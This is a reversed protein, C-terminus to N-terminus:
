RPEPPTDSGTGLPRQMLFSDIWRGLKFGIASMRGAVRFGMAQHTAASSGSEPDGIVAIMQRYGLVTCREILAALLARGIGQRLARHHVYVSDEVSYRYAVRTRYPSAYAFGVIEGDRVAVLYPLGRKLVDARRLLLEAVDPPTEEFSAASNRVHHAYIAQIAPMDDERADRVLIQPREQPPTKLSTISM